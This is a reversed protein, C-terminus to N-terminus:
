QPTLMILNRSPDLASIAALASFIAVGSFILAATRDDRGRMLSFTGPYVVIFYLMYLPYVWRLPEGSLSRLVWLVLGALALGAATWIAGWFNGSLRGGRFAIYGAWAGLAFSFLVYANTVIESLADLFQTM